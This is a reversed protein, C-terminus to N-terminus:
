ILHFLKMIGAIASAIGGITLFLKFSTKIWKRPTELTDLRADTDKAYSFHINKLTNVGSIHEDLLRNQVDDQENIRRLEYETSQIHLEIKKDLAALSENQRDSKDGLKHLLAIIEDDRLAM